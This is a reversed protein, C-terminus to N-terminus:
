AAWLLLLPHYTPQVLVGCVASLSLDLMGLLGGCVSFGSASALFGCFASRLGLSGLPGFSSLCTAPVPPPLDEFGVASFGDAASFASGSGGVGGGSGVAAGRM